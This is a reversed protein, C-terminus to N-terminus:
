MTFCQFKCCGKEEEEWDGWVGKKKRLVERDAGARWRTASAAALSCVLQEEREPHSLAGEPLGSAGSLYQPLSCFFNLHSLVLLWPGL